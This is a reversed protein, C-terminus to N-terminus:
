IENLKDALMSNEEKLCILESQLNEITAESEDIGLNFAKILGNFIPYKMLILEAEILQLEEKSKTGSMNPQKFESKDIRFSKCEPCRMKYPKTMSQWGCHCEYSIAKKNVKM